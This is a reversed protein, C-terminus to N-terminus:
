PNDEFLEHALIKFINMEGFWTAIFTGFFSFFGIIGGWKGLFDNLDDTSRVIVTKDGNLFLQLAM